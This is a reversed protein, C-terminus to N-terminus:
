SVDGVLEAVAMESTTVAFLDKNLNRAGALTRKLVSARRPSPAVFLVKPFLGHRDQELGSLWYSQYLRCKRLVAPGSHTARDVEVFWRYQYGGTKLDVALDPKLIQGGGGSTAVARWCGPEPEVEALEITDGRSLCRLDIALQAIALTHDLFEESPEWRRARRGDGGHLVRFGRPALSYIYSASGAYIGGIRRRLRYLLGGRTLRELVRRCM